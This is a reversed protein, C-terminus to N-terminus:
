PVAPPLSLPSFWGHTCVEDINIGSRTGIWNYLLIQVLLMVGCVTVLIYLLPRPTDGSTVNGAKVNRFVTYWQLSVLCFGFFCLLNSINGILFRPLFLSPPLDTPTPCLEACKPALSEWVKKM